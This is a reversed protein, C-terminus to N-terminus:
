PGPVYIGEGCSYCPDPSPVGVCHYAEGLKWIAAGETVCSICDDGTGNKWAAAYATVETISIVGDANTDMPHTCCHKDITSEGGIAYDKGDVSLIGTFTKEGSEGAPPTVDYTVTRDRIDLDFWPGWKVKGNVADWVGGDSINSVTWGTPPTDELAVASPFREENIDVAIRVTMTQEPCYAYPLDRTATHIVPSQGSEDAGIDIGAGIPRVDGEFDVAVTGTTGADINQSGSALHYDDITYTGALPARSVVNGRVRLTTASNALVMFHGPELPDASLDVFAGSFQGLTWAKSTDTLITTNTVPDYIGEASWFGSDVGEGVLGPAWNFNNRFNSLILEIYSIDNGLGVGGRNIIDTVSHFDNHTITLDWALAEYIATHMDEFINNIITSSEASAELHICSKDDTGGIFTNNFVQIDQKTSIAGGKYDVGSGCKNYLFM